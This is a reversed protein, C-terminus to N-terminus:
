NPNIQQEKVRFIIVVCKKCGGRYILPNVLVNIDILLAIVVLSTERM